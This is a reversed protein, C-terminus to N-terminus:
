VINYLLKRLFARVKIDSKLVKWDDICRKAIPIIQNRVKNQTQNPGLGLLILPSNLALQETVNCRTNMIQKTGFFVKCYQM